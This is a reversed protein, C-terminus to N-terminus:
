NLACYYKHSHVLGNDWEMAEPNKMMFEVISEDYNFGTSGGNGKDMPYIYELTIKYDNDSSLGNTSYFLVGSWEVNHIKNCLYKIQQEVKDSLIVKVVKSLKIKKINLVKTNNNNNFLNERNEM